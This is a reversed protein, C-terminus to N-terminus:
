QLRSLDVELGDFAPVVGWKEGEMELQEQNMGCNHSFHNAFILTNEKICGRERLEKIFQANEKFGMHSPFRCEMPGFTCDLSVMDLSINQFFDFAKKSWVGTDNGYLLNKGGQSILYVFCEEAQDHVAPLPTFEVGAITFSEYPKVQRLLISSDKRSGFELSLGEEALKMVKENGYVSFPKEDEIHCYNRTSRRTLEASDFHDTHSHTVVLGEVLSLDLGYKLKHFYIDPTLDILIRDNILAGARTRVNPGGSKEAEKCLRCQCFLAPIGEAAATGLYKIKM